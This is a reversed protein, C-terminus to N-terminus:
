EACVPKSLRFYSTHLRFSSRSSLRFYSIQLRFSSLVGRSNTRLDEGFGGAQLVTCSENQMRASLGVVVYAPPPASLIEAGVDPNLIWKQFFEIRCESIVVRLNSTANFRYPM